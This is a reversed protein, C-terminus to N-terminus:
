KVEAEASKRGRRGARRIARGTKRTAERPPYGWEWSDAVNVTDKYTAKWVVKGDVTIEVHVSPAFLSERDSM